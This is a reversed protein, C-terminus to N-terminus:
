KVKNLLAEAHPLAENGGGLMRAIEGTRDELKVVRSITRGNEEFKEVKYHSQARAAVQALHSISLIQRVNGLNRLEEGVRNATEGGINMDIEDFIVTPVEDASALVTKLALMLRSLEGSSAIKRLPRLEEGANASFLIDMKDMGSEGPTCETFQASMKCGNFGIAQLKETVKDLFDGAVAKRKNSLTKAKKTLESLLAKEKNDFEALKRAAAKYDALKDAAQDRLNLVDEITPGYRRKLTHLLSMRNEINALEEPDLEVHDAIESVLSSLESVSEQLATCNNLLDEAKQADFKEFARLDHYVSGLMDAISDEGDTLRHVLSGSLELVERANSGLLFKASLREDEGIELNAVNIEEVLLELRDAEMSNPINAQFEEKEKQLLNLEKVLQGCEKRFDNLSAYADLLELQRSPSLLSLQEGAGHLDILHEGLSSLLKANVATDNIFNRVTTPTIVRRLSLEGSNIDFEVGCEDLIAAIKSRLNSPVTFLGTVQAKNCNTRIIGKDVRGGLLLWVAGMLISKGAGSEGTVVNFGSTFEVESHEILALDKIQIYNLM